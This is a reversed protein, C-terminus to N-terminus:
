KKEQFDVAVLTCCKFIPPPQPHIKNCNHLMFKKMFEVVATVGFKNLSAIQAILQTCLKNSIKSLASLINKMKHNEDLTKIIM